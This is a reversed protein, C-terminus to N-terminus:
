GSLSDLLARSDKGSRKASYMATDAGHLLREATDGPVALAGGISATVSVTTGALAMPARLSALLRDAVDRLREGDADTLLVAFEDGGLRAVVDDARVDATLRSAVTILLDDGAAHGLSDNVTKFDDIDVFLVAPRADADIGRTAEDLRESFATRNLLGTLPDTRAQRRLEDEFLKRDTVERFNVVWGKIGVADVRGSIRMEVWRTGGSSHEVRIDTDVAGAHVDAADGAAAVAARLRPQDRPDALEIADRGVYYAPPRGLLSQVAPSMYTIAGTSAEVIAIVDSANELLLQLRAEGAVLAARTSERESDLSHLRWLAMGTLLTSGAGLVYGVGGHGMTWLILLAPSVLLAAGLGLVRSSAADQESEPVQGMAAVAPHRAALVLAAVALLPLPDLFPSERLPTGVLMRGGYGVVTLVAAVLLAMTSVSRNGRSMALPVCVILLVATLVPTGVGLEAFDGSTNAGGRSVALLSLGAALLLTTTDMWAGQNRRRRGGRVVGLAGVIMAAYAALDLATEVVDFIETHVGALLPVEAASSLAFFLLGLGLGRWAVVLPTRHRGLATRVAVIGFGFLVVEAAPRWPGMPVSVVAAVVLVVLAAHLWAARATPAASDTM